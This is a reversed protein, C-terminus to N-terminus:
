GKVLSQRDIKGSGTKPLENLYVVTRPYEYPLLRGKVYDQLGRTTEESGGSGDDLVVFAKLRPSDTPARSQWSRANACWPIIRSACSSRSHIPGSAVSRSSTM